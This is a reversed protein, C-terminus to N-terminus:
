FFPGYNPDEYPARAEKAEPLLEPTDRVAASIALAAALVMDDHADHSIPHSTTASLELLEGEFTEWGPLNLPCRLSRLSMLLLLQTILARRPIGVFGGDLKNTMKGSTIMVPSIRIGSRTTRRLQEIFPVGPGGADIILEKRQQTQFANSM